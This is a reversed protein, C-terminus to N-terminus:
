FIFLEMEVDNRPRVGCHNGEYIGADRMREGISVGTLTILYSLLASSSAHTSMILTFWRCTYDTVYKCVFATKSLNIHYPSLWCLASALFLELLMFLMSFDYWFEM